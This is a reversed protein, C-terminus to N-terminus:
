KIDAITNFTKYYKILEPELLRKPGLQLNINHKTAIAAQNSMRTPAFQLWADHAKGQDAAKNNKPANHYGLIVYRYGMGVVYINKYGLAMAMPIAFGCMAGCHAWPLKRPTWKDFHPFKLMGPTGGNAKVFDGWAHHWVMFKTSPCKAIIEKVETQTALAYPTVANTGDNHLMGHMV